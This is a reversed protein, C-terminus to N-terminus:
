RSCAAQLIAKRIQNDENYETKNGGCPECIFRKQKPQKKMVKATKVIGLMEEGCKECKEYFM